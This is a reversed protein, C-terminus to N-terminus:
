IYKPRVEHDMKVMKGSLVCLFKQFVGYAMIGFHGINGHQRPIQVDRILHSVICLM